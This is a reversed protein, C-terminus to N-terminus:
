QRLVINNWQGYQALANYDSEYKAYWKKIPGCKPQLIENEDVINRIVIEEFNIIEDKLFNISNVVNSEMTKRVPEQKKLIM